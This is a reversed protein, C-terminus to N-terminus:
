GPALVMPSTMLVILMVLSFQGCATADNAVYVNTTKPIVRLYLFLDQTRVWGNSNRELVRVRLTGSSAANTGIRFAFDLADGFQDAGLAASAGNKLEYGSPAPECASLDGLAYTAGSIIGSPSFTAEPVSWNIPTYACVQVNPSQAPDYGGLSFAARVNLRQGAACGAAPCALPGLLTLTNSQASQSARGLLGEGGLYCFDGGGVIGCHEVSSWAYSGM